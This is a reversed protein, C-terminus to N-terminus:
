SEIDVVVHRKEIAGIDFIVVTFLAEAAEFCGSRALEVCKDVGEAM